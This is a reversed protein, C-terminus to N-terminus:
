GSSTTLCCCCFGHGDLVWFTLTSSKFGITNAGKLMLRPLGLLIVMLHRRSVPADPLKTALFCAACKFNCLSLLGVTVHLVGLLVNSVLFVQVHM